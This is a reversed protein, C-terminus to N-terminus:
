RQYISTGSIFTSIVSEKLDSRRGQSGRNEMRVTTSVNWWRRFAADSVTREDSTMATRASPVGNDICYNHLRMCASLIPGFRALSFKLLWWLIGFRVVLMGLSQEVHIRLSFHFFNFSDRWLGQEEDMLQGNSWPPILGSVCEYAADAALWYGGLEDDDQLIQGLRSCAVSLSDHTSGVFKASMYTSRYSADVNTQVPLAYMGKRCYFNRPVFRDHPKVICISICDLAGVCGTPPSSQERSGEFGEALVRLKTNDRLPTGPMSICRNLADVTSHFVQFATSRGIRLLMVLDLYPGGALICLTIGLRVAPEIVGGSSRAAQAANRYLDASIADLLSRFAHRPM